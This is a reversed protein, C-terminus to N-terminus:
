PGGDADLLLGLCVVNRYPTRDFVLTNVALLSYFWGRTQDIAECIFDAPFREKFLEQNEFPDHYQAFPMSGSDFWADLVPEVRRAREGCEECEVQFASPLRADCSPCRAVLEAQEIAQRAQEKNVLEIERTKAVEQATLGAIEENLQAVREHLQAKQGARGTTRVEFLKSESAMVTAVDPDRARDTLQPPFTIGELGREQADLM